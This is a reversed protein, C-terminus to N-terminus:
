YVLCVNKYVRTVSQISGAEMEGYDTLMKVRDGKRYRPKKESNDLAEDETLIYIM